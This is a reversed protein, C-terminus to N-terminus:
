TQKGYQQYSDLYPDNADDEAMIRDVLLSNEEMSPDDDSLTMEEYEQARLLVYMENTAPDTVHVPGQSTAKLQEATLEISMPLEKGALTGGGAAASL